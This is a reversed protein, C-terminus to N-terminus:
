KAKSKSQKAKCKRQILTNTDPLSVARNSRLTEIQTTHTQLISTGIRVANM